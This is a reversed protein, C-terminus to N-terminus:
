DRGAPAGPHRPLAGVAAQILFGVAADAVTTFVPPSPASKSVRLFSVQQINLSNVHVLPLALAPM